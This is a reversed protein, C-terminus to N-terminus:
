IIMKGFNFDPILRNTQHGVTLTDSRDFARAREVAKAHPSSLALARTRQCDSNKEKEKSHITITSIEHVITTPSPTQYKKKPCNLSFTYLLM